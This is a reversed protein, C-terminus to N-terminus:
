RGERARGGGVRGVAASVHTSFLWSASMRACGFPCGDGYGGAAAGSVCQMARYFFYIERANAQVRGRTRWMCLQHVFGYVCPPYPQRPAAARRRRRGARGATGCPALRTCSAGTGARTATRWTRPSSQWPRFPACCSSPLLGFAGYSTHSVVQRRDQDQVRHTSGFGCLRMCPRTVCRQARKSGSATCPTCCTRGASSACQRGRCRRPPRPSVRYQM